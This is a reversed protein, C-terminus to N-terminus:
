YLGPQLRVVLAKEIKREIAQKSKIQQWIYPWDSTWCDDTFNDNLCKLFDPVYLGDVKNVKGMGWTEITRNVRTIIADHDM